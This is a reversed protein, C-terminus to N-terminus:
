WVRITRPLPDLEFKMGQTSTRRHGQTRSSRTDFDNPTSSRSPTLDRTFPEAVLCFRFYRLGRSDGIDLRRCPAPQAAHRLHHYVIDALHRRLVRLAETKSNGQQIRREILTKAPPHMRVQTVAIRHLATNLQRNGGRNLRVRTRNGTWVPIPATGAHMAFAASSRFRTVGATEAIIKAATLGACGPLQLLEPALQEIRNTIRRELENARRTLEAARDILELAIETRIGPPRQVVQDRLRVLAILRSAVQRAPYDIGLDHLHWHLRNLTRTREAVLSERHDLLLKITLADPDLHAEPLRPERLAARAVALADIPDSKGPSRGSARSQAMLKPPILVVAQGAAILARLLAGAVHRCDEVAWRPSDGLQRGWDLLRILEPVTNGVTIQALSRGNHDVAVATHSHKHPDIGVVLM